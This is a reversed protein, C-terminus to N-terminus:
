GGHRNQSSRSCSALSETALSGVDCDMQAALIEMILLHMTLVNEEKFIPFLDRWRTGPQSSLLLNILGIVANIRSDLVVFSQGKMVSEAMKWYGIGLHHIGTVKM